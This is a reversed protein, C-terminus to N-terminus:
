KDLALNMTANSVFQPHKLLTEVIEQATSGATPGTAPINSNSPLDVRIGPAPPLEVRGNSRYPNVIYDPNLKIANAADIYLDIYVQQSTQLDSQKVVTLSPTFITYRDTNIKSLHGGSSSITAELGERSSSLLHLAMKSEDTNLRIAPLQLEIGTPTVVSKITSMIPLVSTIANLNLVDNAYPNWPISTTSGSTVAIDQNSGYYTANGLSWAAIKFGGNRPVYFDFSTVETQYVTGLQITCEKDEYVKVLANFNANSMYRLLVKDQFEINVDPSINLGKWFNYKLTSITKGPLITANNKLVIKVHDQIIELVSAHNQNVYAGVTQYDERFFMGTCQLNHAVTHVIAKYIEDLTINQNVILTIKADDDVEATFKYLADGIDGNEMTITDGVLTDKVDAPSVSTTARNIVWKRGPQLSLQTFNDQHLVISSPKEYSSGSIVVSLFNLVASKGNNALKALEHNSKQVHNNDPDSVAPMPFSPSFHLEPNDNIEGKTPRMHFLVVYEETGPIKITKFVSGLLSDIRRAQEKNVKNNLFLFVSKRIDTEWNVGGSFSVIEALLYCSDYFTPNVSNPPLVPNLRRFRKNENNLFVFTRPM